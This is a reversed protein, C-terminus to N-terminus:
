GVIAIATLLHSALAENGSFRIGARAAERSIGKTFLRWALDESLYAQATLPHVAECVLQWRDASRELTWTGGAGGEVHFELTSGAPASVDRYTHPLARFFCDLVPHYFERDLIGSRGTAVRIQQQHHWRETLERATDLWNLSTSEGAWSVNFAAAAHPDLSAHFAAAERSAVEMLEILVQPSLRAYYDVGEANLHNIFAVIDTDPRPGTAPLPRFFGDRVMSLKRVQTDLLHAVVDKVRWKLALTPLQWEEPVLSRLLDILKAELPAYLHATLIPPLPRDALPM